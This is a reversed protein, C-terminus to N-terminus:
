DENTVKKLKPLKLKPPESEHLRTPLKLEVQKPISKNSDQLIQGLNDRMVEYSFQEMHRPMKRSRKLYESYNEHIDVLKRSAYQYNVTFWQSEKLIFKDWVASPHVNTLQGPLLETYEPHLFDLHGSWNSAVIPKGTQAFEAFPRGYGEGKTFSVFAKVKPHNYLSNMEKDTLDGHILYVNPHNDGYSDTVSRIKKLIRERDTISFGAGSTKLLLAPRNKPAKKKFSECFVKILGGVDKRDHGIEGQLWHGVFLFAFKEPIADMIESVVPEVENTKHYDATVGEHLVDVLTNLQLVGVKQRTKEDVHDFVSNEFVKKAHESTVIVRDMQNCGQIWTHHCITTEIGATIGINYKGVKRFENPVTIQIWIDPQQHLDQRLIRKHIEADRSNELNLANMPCSGWPMSVIRVDYQDLEIIASVIDRAHAGYGSRTAVPASVVVLPKNM